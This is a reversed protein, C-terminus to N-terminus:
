AHKAVLCDIEAVAREVREELSGGIESFSKGLGALEARYLTYLEERQEPHERQPDYEWPIDVGCLFYHTYAREAIQELIWPDTTGYKVQSWIKITVLDTDCFLLSPKGAGIRDERFLQGKAIALLDPQEYERKLSELYARAYEPVWPAGYHAALQLALTTKGSSEPGTLVIRLM